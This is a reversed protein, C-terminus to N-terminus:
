SMWAPTGQRQVMGLLTRKRADDSPVKLEWVLKTVNDLRKRQTWNSIYQM